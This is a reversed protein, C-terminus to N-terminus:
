STNVSEAPAGGGGSAAAAQILAGHGRREGGYQRRSAASRRRAPLTFQGRPAFRNTGREDFIMRRMAQQGRL